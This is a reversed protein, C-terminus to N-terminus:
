KAKKYIFCADYQLQTGRTGGSLFALVNRGETNDTRYVLGQKFFYSVPIEIEHWEGDRTFNTYAPYSVGNDVFATDGICVCSEIKDDIGYLVILHSANDSSKMAIHLYYDEPAEMIAALKNLDNVAAKQYEEMGEPTPNTGGWGCCYGMGSWDDNGSVEVSLWSGDEVGYFNQGLTTYMIYTREWIYLNKSGITNQSFNAVVKSAIQKYEEAGLQFIYYNTGELSHHNIKDDVTGFTISDVENFFYQTYQGDKWVNMQASMGLVMMAMAALSLIRKM